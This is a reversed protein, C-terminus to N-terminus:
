KVKIIQDILLSTSKGPILDIIEVTGGNSIVIDSGIIENLLYDGGKVLVHPLLKNIIKAPNDEEFKVIMDIYKISDLIFARDNFNHIPRKNGKLRMVSQDSNLAVILKEGKSKAKSLLDIHGRHILDYCGNTFVVKKGANKWKNNQDIAIEWNLAIM